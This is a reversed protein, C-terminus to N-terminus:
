ARSRRKRNHNTYLQGPDFTREMEERFVQAKKAAKGTNMARYANYGAIGAKYALIGPNSIGMAVTGLSAATSLGKVAAKRAYKAGNNAQKELRRLHRSAKRYQKEYARISGKNIAKRVRWKMGKVGYHSLYESSREIGYYQPM